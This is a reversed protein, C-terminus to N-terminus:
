SSIYVYRTKKETEACVPQDFSLDDFLAVLETLASVFAAAFTWGYAVALLGFLRVHGQHCCFIAVNSPFLYRQSTGPQRDTPFINILSRVTSSCTQTVRKREWVESTARVSQKDDGSVPVLMLGSSSAVLLNLLTHKSASAPRFFITSKWCIYQNEESSRKFRSVTTFSSFM